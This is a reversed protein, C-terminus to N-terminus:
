PQALKTLRLRTILRQQEAAEALESEPDRNLRSRLTDLMEQASKGSACILFVFGFRSEYEENLRVFEARTEESAAAMGSQESKSLEGSAQSQDPKPAQDGIRPHHTFAERWASEDLSKWIRDACELLREDSDFPRSQLLSDAWQSCACCDFLLQHADQPALANIHQALADATM